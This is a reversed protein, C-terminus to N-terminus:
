SPFKRLLRLRGRFLLSLFPSSCVSCGPQGWPNCGMLACVTAPASGALTWWERPRQM